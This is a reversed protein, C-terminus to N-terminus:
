LWGELTAILLERATLPRTWRMWDNPHNAEAYKRWHVWERLTATDGTREWVDQTVSLLEHVNPEFAPRPAGVRARLPAGQKM